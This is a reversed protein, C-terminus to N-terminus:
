RAARPVPSAAPAVRESHPRRSLVGRLHASGVGGRDADYGAVRRRLETDEVAEGRIFRDMLDQHRSNGFEVVIDNLVGALRPDRILALRFAHGQVNGHNDGVAVLQHTTFADAIAAIPDRPTAPLPPSQASLLTCASACISILVRAFWQSTKM